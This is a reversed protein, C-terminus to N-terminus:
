RETATDTLEEYEKDYIDIIDDTIDFQEDRYFVAGTNSNFVHTYGRQRAYKEVIIKIDKLIDNILQQDIKDLEEKTKTKSLVSYYSIMKRGKSSQDIIKQIDIVGIKMLAPQPARAAPAAVVPRDTKKPTGSVQTKSVDPSMSVHETRELEILDAFMWGVISRGPLEVKVWDGQRSKEIIEDGKSVTAIVPYVTDPGKRLNVNAKAILIKQALPAPPAAEARPKEPQREVLKEEVIGRAQQPQATAMKGSSAPVGEQPVQAAAAPAPQQPASKRDLLEFPLWGSSNKAPIDIKIWDGTRERGIVEDGMRVTDVVTFDTGPGKVVIFDKRLVYVDKTGSDATPQSVGSASANSEAEVLNKHLWGSMEKDPMSVEVWNGQRSKEIVKDGAALYTVVPFEMGPGKRVNASTHVVLEKQPRSSSDTGVGWAPGSLALFALLFLLIKKYDM